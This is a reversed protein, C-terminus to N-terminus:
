GEKIIFSLQMTYLGKFTEIKVNMKQNELVFGSGMTVMQCKYNCYVWIGSANIRGPMASASGSREVKSFLVPRASSM